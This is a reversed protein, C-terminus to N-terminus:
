KIVMMFFVSHNFFSSANLANFVFRQHQSYNDSKDCFSITEKIIKDNKEKNNMINNINLNCDLDINNILSQLFDPADHQYLHM